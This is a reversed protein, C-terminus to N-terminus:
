EEQYEGPSYREEGDEFGKRAKEYDDRNTSLCVASETIQEYERALTDLRERLEDASM